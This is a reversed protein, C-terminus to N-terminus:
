RSRLIAVDQYGFAQANIQEVDLVRSWAARAQQPSQHTVRYYTDDDIKGDLAPDILNDDYGTERWHEWWEGSQHISSYAAAANGGFTILALGGPKLLRKIEKVWADQAKATLHTMVSLGIILDYSYAPVDLPPWLPAVTFSGQRLHEKCWAINEADIDTGSIHAQPWNDIFHRTLRGHGCGWDLVKLGQHNSIGNQAALSEFGKFANYGTFAVTAHNSWTQVRTMQDENSPFGTYARLDYPIWVRSRDRWADAYDNPVATLSAPKGNPKTAFRFSFADTGPISEALNIRVRFGSMHANPWYWYHDGFEASPLPYELTGSVGLPFEVCLRGPDGFPPLHAGSVTLFAGDFALWPASFLPHIAPDFVDSALVGKGNTLVPVGELQASFLREGANDFGEVHFSSPKMRAPLSCVLQWSHPGDLQREAPLTAYHVGDIRIDTPMTSPHESSVHFYQIRLRGNKQVFVTAKESSFPEGAPLTAPAQDEMEFAHAQRPPM